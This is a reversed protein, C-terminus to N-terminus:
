PPSVVQVVSELLQEPVSSRRALEPHRPLSAAAAAARELEVGLRPPSDARM